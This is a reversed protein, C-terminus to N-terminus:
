FFYLGSLPHKSRITFTVCPQCFISIVIQPIHCSGVELESDHVFQENLDHIVEKAIKTDHEKEKQAVTKEHLMTWGSKAPASSSYVVCAVVVVALLGAVLSRDLLHQWDFFLKRLVCLCVM